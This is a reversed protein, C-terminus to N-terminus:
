CPLLRVVSLSRRCGFSRCDLLFTIVAPAHARRSVACCRRRSPKRRPFGVRCFLWVVARAVTECPKVLYCLWNEARVAHYQISARRCTSPMIFFTSDHHYCPMVIAQRCPLLVAFVIVCSLGFFPAQSYDIPHYWVVMLCQSLVARCFHSM